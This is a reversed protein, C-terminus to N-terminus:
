SLPHGHTKKRASLPLPEYIEDLARVFREASFEARVLASMETAQRRAEDPDDLVAVVGAALGDADDAVAFVALDPGVIGEVGVSTSVVPVARVMADVTKFKVGAGARLPILAVAADAYYEELSPVRGTIVIDGSARHACDRMEDTPSTGAFVFTADPHVRRVRPVIERLAWVAADANVSRDFAGVFLVTRGRAGTTSATPSDAALPPRVVRAAVAGRTARSIVEVDKRSFTMVTHARTYIRREDRRVVFRRWRALLGRPRWWVGAADLFREYSQLLVDHAVVVRRAAGKEGLGLWGMETWQYEIVDAERVLRQATESRRWARRVRAVPRAPFLRLQQRDVLRALAPPWWSPSAAADLLVVRHRTPEDRAARNEPTDTSIVTIEHGRESLTELHRLYYQGGAHPVGAFPVSPAVSVIKM